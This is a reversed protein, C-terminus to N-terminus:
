RLASIRCSAVKQNSKNGQSRYGTKVHTWCPTIATGIRNIRETGTELGFVEVSYTTLWQDHRLRESSLKIPTGLDFKKYGSIRQRLQEMGQISGYQALASGYLTSSFAELDNEQLAALATELVGSPSSLTKCGSFAMVYVALMCVMGFRMQRM